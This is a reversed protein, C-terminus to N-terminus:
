NGLGYQIYMPRYILCINRIDNLLLLARDFAHQCKELTHQYENGQFVLLYHLTEKDGERYWGFLKM